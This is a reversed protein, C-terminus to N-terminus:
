SIVQATFTTDIRSIFYPTFAVRSEQDTSGTGFSPGNISGTRIYIGSETKATNSLSRLESVATNILTQNRSAGRGKETFARVVITGQIYDFDTSLTPETTIGFQLNVHIFESEADSITNLTNDFYIPVAPSLAGYATHLPSEFKARIAQYNM